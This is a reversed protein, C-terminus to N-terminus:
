QPRPPVPTPQGVPTSTLVLQARRRRMVIVDIVTVDIVTVDIVAVDIAAVDTVV